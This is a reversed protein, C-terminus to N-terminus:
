SRSYKVIVQLNFAGKERSKNGFRLLFHDYLFTVDSNIVSVSSFSMVAVTLALGPGSPRRIYLSRLVKAKVRHSPLSFEAQLQVWQFGVVQLRWTCGSTLPSLLQLWLGQPVFM